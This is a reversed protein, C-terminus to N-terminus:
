WSVHHQLGSEERGFPSEKLPDVTGSSRNFSQISQQHLNDTETFSVFDVVPYQM